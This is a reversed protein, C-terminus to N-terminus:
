FGCEFPVLYDDLIRVIRLKGETDVSVQPQLAEAAAAAAATAAAKHESSQEEQRRVVMMCGATAAEHRLWGTMIWFQRIRTLFPSPKM